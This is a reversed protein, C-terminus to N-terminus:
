NAAQGAAHHFEATGWRSPRNEREAALDEACKGDPFERAQRRMTALRLRCKDKSPSEGAGALEFEYGKVAYYADKTLAFAQDEDLGAKIAARYINAFRADNTPMGLAWMTEIIQRTQIRKAM